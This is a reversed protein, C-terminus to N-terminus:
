ASRRRLIFIVVGAIVAALIAVPMIPLGSSAPMRGETQTPSKSTKPQQVPTPESPDPTSQSAMVAVLAEAQRADDRSSVLMIARKVTNIDRFDGGQQELEQLLNELEPLAEEGAPGLKMIANASTIKAGIRDDSKIIEILQSTAQPIPVFAATRILNLALDPNIGSQYEGIRDAVIVGIEDDLLGSKSLAMLSSAAVGPSKTRSLNDKLVNYVDLSPAASGLVTTATQAVTSDSNRTLAILDNKIPEIIQQINQRAKIRAASPTDVPSDIPEMRNIELQLAVLAQNIKRPDGQSIALKLGGVESDIAALLTSAGLAIIILLSKM